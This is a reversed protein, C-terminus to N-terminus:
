ALEAVLCRELLKECRGGKHGVWIWGEQRQSLFVRDM